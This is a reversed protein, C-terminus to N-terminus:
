KVQRWSQRGCPYPAYMPKGGSVGIAMWCAPVEPSRPIAVVSVDKVPATGGTDLAVGATGAPPKTGTPSGTRMQSM